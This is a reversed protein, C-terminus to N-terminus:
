RYQPDNICFEPIITMQEVSYRESMSLLVLKTAHIEDSIKLFPPIHRGRELYYLYQQHKRNRSCRNNIKLTKNFWHKNQEEYSLPEFYEDPMTNFIEENGDYYDVCIKAIGSNSNNNITKITWESKKLDLLMVKNTDGFFAVQKDSMLYKNHNISILQDIAKDIVDIGDM